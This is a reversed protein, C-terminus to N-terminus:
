DPLQFFKCGNAYTAAAIEDASEDRLTAIFEAVEGLYAPRNRKGRQSAPSMFPSESEILMRELPMQSATEHLNHANKYTINGAFSIYVPMDLVRKAYNWDESYCHLVAGKGPIEQRLIDLVDEGAGRNHIVVPLGLKDALHLQRIFLEIQDKKNGYKRFYDLGTEGIAVVRELQAFKSIEEESGSKYRTVEAPSIGTVHYVHTAVKLNNYVQMFDDIGGSISVIREVGRHKAERAALLQEIPDESILGLHAHSDLLKM